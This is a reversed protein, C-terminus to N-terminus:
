QMNNQNPYQGNNMQQPVQGYNQNPMQQNTMQQMQQQYQGYNQNPMMQGPVTMPQQYQAYGPNMMMQQNMQNQASPDIYYDEPLNGTLRNIEFDLFYNDPNNLDIVLDIMGDADAHKRDHRPDGDLLLLTGNPLTYNVVPKMIQRGNISAGTAEMHYPLNKVLKGTENLQKITKIRKIVKITNLVAVSIFIIPIGLGIIIFLLGISGGEPICYSPDDSKFKIIKNETSPRNSTSSGITCKYEEGNVKYYYVPSYMTGDSSRREDIEVRDSMVESDMSKEKKIDSLIVGGFIILFILGVIFFLSYFNISKKVNKLNIDYM